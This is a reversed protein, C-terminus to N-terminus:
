CATNLFSLGKAAGKPHGCVHGCKPCADQGDKEWPKRDQVARKYRTGCKSCRGDEPIDVSILYGSDDYMWLMTRTELRNQDSRPARM